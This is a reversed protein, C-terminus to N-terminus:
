RKSTLEWNGTTNYIHGAEFGNTDLHDIAGFREIIEDFHVLFHPKRALDMCAEENLVTKTLDRLVAYEAQLFAVSQRLDANSRDTHSSRKCQFYVYLVLEITSLVKKTVNGINEEAGSKQKYLFKTTNPLIDGNTGIVFYTQLLITVFNASPIRGMSNSSHGKQKNSKGSLLYVLGSDVKFQKVHPLCNNQNPFDILRSDFLGKAGRFKSKASSSSSIKDVIVLASFLIAKMM